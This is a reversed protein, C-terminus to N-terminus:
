GKGGGRGRQTWGRATAHARRRASALGSARTRCGVVALRQQAVEVRAARQRGCVVRAECRPARVARWGRGAGDTGGVADGISERRQKRARVVARRGTRPVRVHARREIGFAALRAAPDQAHGGRVQSRRARQAAARLRCRRRAGASVTRATPSGIRSWRRRAAGVRRVVPRAEVLLAHALPVLQDCRV